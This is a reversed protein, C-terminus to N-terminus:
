AASQHGRAFYWRPPPPPARRSCDHWITLLKALLTAAKTWAARLLRYQLRKRGRDRRARMPQNRDDGHSRGAAQPSKAAGAGAGARRASLLPLRRATPRYGGSVGASQCNVSLHEPTVMARVRTLRRAIARPAASGPCPRSWTVGAFRGTEPDAGDAIAASIAPLL